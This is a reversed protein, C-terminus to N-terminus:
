RVGVWAPKACEVAQGTMIMLEADILPLRAPNGLNNKYTWATRRGSRTTTFWIEISQTNNMNKTYVGLIYVALTEPM